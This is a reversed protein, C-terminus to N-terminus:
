ARSSSSCSSSPRPTRSSTRRGPSGRPSAPSRTSRARLRVRPAPAAPAELPPPPVGGQVDAHRRRRPLREHLGQLRPLPRPGGDGRRVALPRHRDRGRADRVPAPGPRADHLARRAHGHLEPVHRGAGAAAPVQRRRRLPRHRPRLRRRGGRVRVQGAAAVARLRRRAQPERRAQVPRRGQRPEDELRSGLDAQVRPLGRRDRARVAQPPARRAAPRRRARGLALRRVLRLPRGSGGHVGPLARNGAEHAPRLQDPLPRLGPRCPRVDRGRLRVRRVAEEPRGHLRRRVGAAGGLGGLRALPGQREPPLRERRSRGCAGALGEGRGAPGRLRRDRRPAPRAKPRRRRIAAGARGGGGPHRRRVGRAAVRRAASRTAADRPVCAGVLEHDIAELAVPGHGMIWPVQRGAECVDEFWAVVLAREPLAPTLRLKAQLTTAITGETGVLARAVNFGNEPLLDDLNYGSVRRPLKSVPPFKERILPEYRRMLDHLDRYIQGRRGGAGVIRRLEEEGTEGVWMRLGDYTVIELSDVNDSTRPGPGYLQSQVSHVGCSNNGVNGGITCYRRTAPDPGFVWGSRGCHANVRENIAGPRCVVTHDSLDPDDFDDLYKTCDVIVATNVAEGSLSTGCGRPTIPAGHERCVRHVAVVDDLTRPIVVGIPPQRYNSADTAYMARHATDFRVEGEVAARLGDALGRRDLEEVGAAGDRFRINARKAITVGM